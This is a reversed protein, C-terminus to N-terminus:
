GDIWSNFELHKGYLHYEVQKGKEYDDCVGILETEREEIDGLGKKPEKFDKNCTFLKTGAIDLCNCYKCNGCCEAIRYNTKM